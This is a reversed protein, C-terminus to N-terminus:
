RNSASRRRRRLLGAFLLWELGIGSASGCACALGPQGANNSQPDYTCVGPDGVSGDCRYDAPCWRNNGCWTTCLGDLCIGYQCEGANGCSEGVSRTGTDGDERCMGNGMEDVVCGQGEPCQYHGLRQDCGRGCRGMGNFYGCAGSQCHSDDACRGEPGQPQGPDFPSCEDAECIQGTPCDLDDICSAGVYPACVGGGDRTPQCDLGGSCDARTQCNQFCRRTGDYYICTTGDECPKDECVEGLRAFRRDLCIRITDVGPRTVEACEQETGCDSDRACTRSCTWGRGTPACELGEACAYYSDCPEGEQVDGGDICLSMRSNNQGEFTRCTTGQPCPPDGRECSQYCRADNEDGLCLLGEECPRGVCIEGRGAADALADARLCVNRGGSQECEYGVPCNGCAQSCYQSNRDTICLGSTCDSNRTCGWGLGGRQGPYIGCIGDTDDQRLYRFPYGVYSPTMVADVTCNECPHDLGLAHGIEHVAISEIDIHRGRNATGWRGRNSPYNVENFQIDADVIDCGRYPRSGNGSCAGRRGTFSTMTIGLTGAGYPWDNANSQFWINNTNDNTARPTGRVDGLDQTAILSCTVDTWSQLASRIARVDSGDNIGSRSSGSTDIRFGITNSQTLNWKGVQGQWAHATSSLFLCAVATVMRRKM